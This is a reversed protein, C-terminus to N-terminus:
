WRRRANSATFNVWGGNRNAAAQEAGNLTVPISGHAKGDLKTRRNFQVRDPVGGGAGESLIVTDAGATASADVDVVLQPSAGAVGTPLLMSILAAASVFAIRVRRM